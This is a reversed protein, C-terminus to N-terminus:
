LQRTREPDISWPTPSSTTVTVSHFPGVFPDTGDPSLEQTREPDISWPNAVIPTLAISHIEQSIVLPVAGAGSILGGSVLGHGLLGDTVLSALM